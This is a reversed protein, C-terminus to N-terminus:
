WSGSQSAIQFSYGITSFTILSGISMSILEREEKKLVKRRTRKSRITM